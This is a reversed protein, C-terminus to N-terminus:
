LVINSNVEKTYGYVLCSEHELWIPYHEGNVESFGVKEFIRQSVINEIRVKGQFTILQKIFDVLKQIGIRLITEGFGLGRYDRQVSYSINAIFNSVEFRIQGLPTRKEDEAIFIYSEFDQLKAEFWEVHEEWSIICSNFSSERVKPDNVWHWLLECDAKEAERLKIEGIQMAQTVRSTGEGDVLDSSTKSYGLLETTSIMLNHIEKSLFEPTIDQAVGCNRGANTKEIGEAIATQNEALIEILSPLGLCCREWTTTGGAGIALDAKVMFQAMNEVHEHCLVNPLAQGQELIKSKNPNSSGIVVDVEIGSSDLMEIAKLAKGTENGPDAGGFFVLIRQVIHDRQPLNQREKLFEPRLIAYKPGLFTRCTFPVLGTYRAYSNSHYNQDLLMDCDHKRDALDDIVMIKKVHQRLSREWRYDLAYSDVFLWDIQGAIDRMIRSTQKSDQQWKVELWKAHILDDPQSVFKGKPAPLLHLNHGHEVVFRNINGKLDRCVFHVNHGIEKLANALTLCRMLHGTGTTISSDVRVLINM